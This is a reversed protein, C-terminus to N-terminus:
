AIPKGSSRSTRRVSLRGSSSTVALAKRRRPNIAARLLARTEDDVATRIDEKKAMKTEKQQRRYQANAPLAPNVHKSPRM